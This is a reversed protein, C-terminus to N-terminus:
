EKAETTTKPVLCEPLLTRDIFTVIPAYLFNAPDDPKRSHIEDMIQQRHQKLWTEVMSRATGVIFRKEDEPVEHFNYEVQAKLLETLTKM